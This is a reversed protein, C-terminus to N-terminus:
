RSFYLLVICILAVLCYELFIYHNLKKQTSKLILSTFLYDIIIINATVFLITGVHNILPFLVLYIYTFLGLVSSAAVSLILNNTNINNRRWLASIIYLLQFIGLILVTISRPIFYYTHLTLMLYTIFTFSVYRSLDFFDEVKHGVKLKDSYVMQYCVFTGYTMASTVLIIGLSLFYNQSYYILIGCSLYQAVPLLIINYLHHRKVRKFLEHLPHKRHYVKGAYEASFLFESMSIIILVCLILIYIKFTVNLMRLNLLFLLTASIFLTYIASRADYYESIIKTSIKKM